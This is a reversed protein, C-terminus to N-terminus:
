SVGKKRSELYADVAKGGISKIADTLGPVNFTEHKLDVKKGSIATVGLFALDPSVGDSALTKGLQRIKGVNTELVVMAQEAEQKAMNAVEAAPNERVNPIFVNIEGVGWSAAESLFKGANAIIALVSDDSFLREQAVQGNKLVDKIPFTASRLHGEFVILAPTDGPEIMLFESFLKRVSKVGIAQSLQGFFLRASELYASKLLKEPDPVALYRAWDVVSYQVTNKKGGSKEVGFFVLAGDQADIEEGPMDLEYIEERTPVLIAGSFLPCFWHKGNRYIKGNPKGLFLGVGEYYLEIKGQGSAFLAYGSLCAAIFGLVPGLVENVHWFNLEKNFFSLVAALVALGTVISAVLGFAQSEKPDIM